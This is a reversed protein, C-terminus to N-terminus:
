GYITIKDPYLQQEQPQPLEGAGWHVSMPADQLYYWDSYCASHLSTTYNAHFQLGAADYVALVYDHDNSDYDASAVALRSGDFAVYTEPRDFLYAENFHSRHRFREEYGGKREDFVSFTKDTYCVILYGDEYRIESFAAGLEITDVLAYTSGDYCRLFTRGNTRSLVYLRDDAESWQLEIIEDILNPDLEIVRRLGDPDPQRLADEPDDPYYPAVPLFYIGYGLKLASLDIREGNNATPSITFYIGDETCFSPSSLVLDVSNGNEDYAYTRRYAYKLIGDEADRMGEIEIMTKQPVPIPFLENLKRYLQYGSGIVQENVTLDNVGQPYDFEFWLPLYEFHEYLDVTCIEYESDSLEGGLSEFFTDTIWYQDNYAGQYDGLTELRLGQPEWYYTKDAAEHVFHFEPTFQLGNEYTQNLEWWVNASQSYSKPTPLDFRVDLQLGEAAARDGYLIEEDLLVAEKRSDLVAAAGGIVGVALVAFALCFIITKKM